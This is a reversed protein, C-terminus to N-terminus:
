LYSCIRGPECAQPDGAAATVHLEQAATRLVILERIQRDLDDIESVLADRVRACPAHGHDRITLIESIRALSLGANRARRIFDIRAVTGPGYDRYGNSSRAAAPLMGREEYFRLTKASVGTLAAVEGIRLKERGPFPLKLDGGKVKWRLPLHLSPCCAGSSHGATNM